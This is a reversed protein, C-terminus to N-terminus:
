ILLSVSWGPKEFFIMGTLPVHTFIISFNMVQCTLEVNFKVLFVVNLCQSKQINFHYLHLKNKRRCPTGDKRVFCTYLSSKKQLISSFNQRCLFRFFPLFTILFIRQNKAIEKAKFAVCHPLHWTPCPSLLTAYRAFVLGFWSKQLVECSYIHRVCNEQNLWTCPWLCSCIWVIFCDYFAHFTHSHLIKSSCRFRALGLVGDIVWSM